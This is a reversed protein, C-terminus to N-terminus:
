YCVQDNNCDQYLSLFMESDKIFFAQADRKWKAIFAPLYRLLPFIEVIHAGPTAAHALRDTYERIATIVADTACGGQPLDYVAALIVYAASSSCVETM